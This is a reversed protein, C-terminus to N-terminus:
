QKEGRAFNCGYINLYHTTPAIHKKAWSAIQPADLWKGELLLEGPRGHSVLQYTNNNSKKTSLNASLFIQGDVAKDIFYPDLWEMSKSTIVQANARGIIGFLMILNAIIVFQFSKQMKNLNVKNTYDQNHIM